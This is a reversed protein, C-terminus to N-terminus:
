YWSCGQQHDCDYDDYMESCSDASGKCVANHGGYGDSEFGLYCGDQNSCGGYAGVSSCSTAWGHCSEVAAPTVTETSGQDEDTASFDGTGYVVVYSGLEGEFAGSVYIWVESDEDFTYSVTEEVGIGYEDIRDYANATEIDASDHLSLYMDFDDSSAKVTLTKGSSITGVSILDYNYSGDLSDDTTLEGEVTHEADGSGGGSCSMQFVLGLLLLTIFCLKQIRM